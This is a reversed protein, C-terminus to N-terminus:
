DDAGGELAKIARSAIHSVTDLWQVQEEATYAEWLAPMPEGEEAPGDHYLESPEVSAADFYGDPVEKPDDYGDIASYDNQDVWRGSVCSGREIERLAALALALKETDTM